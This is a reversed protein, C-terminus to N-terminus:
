IAVENSGMGGEVTDPLDLSDTEETEPTQYTIVEVTEGLAEANNMTRGKCSVSGLVIAFTVIALAAVAIISKKM